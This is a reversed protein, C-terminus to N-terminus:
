EHGPPFFRIVSKGFLVQVAELLLAKPVAFDPDQSVPRVIHTEETVNLKSVIWCYRVNLTCFTAFELRAAADKDKSRSGRPLNMMSEDWVELDFTGFFEYRCDKIFPSGPLQGKTGREAYIKLRENREQYNHKYWQRIWKETSKM